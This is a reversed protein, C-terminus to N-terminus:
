RRKGQRPRRPSRGASLGPHVRGGAITNAGIAVGIIIAAVTVLAFATTQLLGYAAIETVALVGFGVAAATRKHRAAVVGRRVNRGSRRALSGRVTRSHAKVRVKRGNVTRTHSRYLRHRKAM